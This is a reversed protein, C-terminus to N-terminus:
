PTYAAEVTDFSITGGANTTVTVTYMKTYDAHKVTVVNTAATAPSVKIRDNIQTEIYTAIDDASKGENGYYEAYGAGVALEVAETLDADTTKVVAQEAQNFLGGNVVVSITVGALILMIIITIVLAVLTIGKQGKMM